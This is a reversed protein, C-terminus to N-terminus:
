PSVTERALGDCATTVVLTWPCSVIRRFFVWNQQSIEKFIRQLKTGAMQRILIEGSSWRKSKWIVPVLTEFAFGLAYQCFRFLGGLRVRCNADSRPRNALILTYYRFYLEQQRSCNASAPLHLKPFDM